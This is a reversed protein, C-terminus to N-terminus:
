AQRSQRHPSHATQRSHTGRWSVAGTSADVAYVIGKLQGVFVKGYAVSPPFEVYYHARMEWLERFPPRLKFRAPAVHTRADDYGYTPWAIGPQTSKPAPKVTTVIQKTAPPRAVRTGGRSSLLYGIGAGLAAAFIVAALAIQKM